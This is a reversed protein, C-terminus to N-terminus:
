GKKLIKIVKVSENTFLKVFYIGKQLNTIDLLTKRDTMNKQMLEQGNIDYIILVSKPIFAPYDITIQNSAPNPYINISTKEIQEVGSALM